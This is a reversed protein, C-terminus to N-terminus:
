LIVEKISWQFLWDFLLVLVMFFATFMIVAFTLAWTARRNTWQVQRLERWSDRFYRGIAFVPRLLFFPKKGPDRERKVKKAREVKKVPKAPAKKEDTRAASSNDNSAKVRRVVTGKSSNNKVM